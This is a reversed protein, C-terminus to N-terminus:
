IVLVFARAMLVVIRRKRACVIRRPNYFLASSKIPRTNIRFRIPSNTFTFVARIFLAGVIRMETLHVLTRM